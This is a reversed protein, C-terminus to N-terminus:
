KMELRELRSRIHRESIGLQRAAASQNGESQRLAERILSKEFSKMKETYGHELDAPDLLGNQGPLDLRVPLDEPTIIDGRNLVVAREIMNELERVNGPFQYKMLQDLADSNIGKVTRGNQSNHKEIFHDILVPIDTKRRRLAPIWITVVNLRYYLDQRFTGEELMGELDRHTAAVIRVDVEQTRNSGLRQIEGFQIARLLKAQMALPIEGIEDIFLIGGHAEEFRGIRRQGAGTFAGKEHGFLESELLTEPLAAVNVTVFPSDKRDSAFHIARAILEKGTGSEGRVLVTARSNAVRAATNLVEEMEGSQSIITDFRFREQLQRRLTRNEEVLQRKESVRGLMTELEDLDVPKTLYDYAGDKMIEVADEINGYATIVVVEVLPNLAKIKRLVTHGDWGPMRLDTFVLDVPQNRVVEVGTEGDTATFVTHDRRELFHRLAELQSVEDDILLINLPRM